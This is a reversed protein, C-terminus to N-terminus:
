RESTEPKAKRPRSPPQHPRRGTKKYPELSKWLNTIAGACRNGYHLAKDCDAQRFYGRTVGDQVRRLAEHASGRAYRLFGMMEGTNVRGWGEALNSEISLAADFLQDKYRFDERARVSKGVLQYVNLKFEVALQLAQLDELREIRAMGVLLDIPTGAVACGVIASFVPEFVAPKCFSGRGISAFYATRLWGSGQVRFGSGQV